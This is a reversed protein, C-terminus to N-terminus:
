SRHVELELRGSEPQEDARERGPRPASARRGRRGSAKGEGSMEEIVGPLTAKVLEVATADKCYIVQLASHESATLDWAACGLVYNLCELRAWQKRRRREELAAKAIEARLAM